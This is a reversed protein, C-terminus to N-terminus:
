AGGKKQADQNQAAKKQVKAWSDKLSVTRNFVLKGDRCAHRDACFYGVREFQFRSEPAVEALSPEGIAQCVVLSEPNLHDLFDADKDRDPQEELFLNDYLRVEMPVGHEASVWHIVGKM